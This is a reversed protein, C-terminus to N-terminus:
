PCLRAHLAKALETVEDAVAEQRRFPVVDNDDLFQVIEGRLRHQKYSNRWFDVTCTSRRVLDVMKVTIGALEELRKQGDEGLAQDALIGLFPAQTRPDLGTEDAPRESRIEETL